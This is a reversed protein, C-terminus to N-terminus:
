GRQGVGKGLGKKLPLSVRTTPLVKAGGHRGLSLCWAGVACGGRGRDRRGGAAAAGSGWLRTGGVGSLCWAGAACGGRGRDRRVPPRKAGGWFLTLSLAMGRM